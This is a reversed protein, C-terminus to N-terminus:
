LLMSGGEEPDRFIYDSLRKSIGMVIQLDLQHCM